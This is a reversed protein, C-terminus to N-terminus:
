WQTCSCFVFATEGISWKKLYYQALSIAIMGYILFICSFAMTYAIAYKKLSNKLLGPLYKNMMIAFASLLVVMVIMAKSSDM